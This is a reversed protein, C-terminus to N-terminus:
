RPRAHVVETYDLLEQPSDPSVAAFAASALAVLLAALAAFLGTELLQFAWFGARSTSSCTTHTTCARLQVQRRM